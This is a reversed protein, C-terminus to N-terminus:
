VSTVRARAPKGPARVVLPVALANEDLTDDELFPAHTILLPPPARSGVVVPPLQCFDGVLVVRAGPIRNLIDYPGIADLATMGDYIYIALLM